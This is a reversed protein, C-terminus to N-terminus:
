HSSALVVFSCCKEGTTKSRIKKIRKGLLTELLTADYECVVPAYKKAVNYLLCNYVNIEFKGDIKKAEAYAGQENLIECILNVREELPKGEFRGRYRAANRKAARVLLRKIGAIGEYEILEDMLRELFESYAKPLTAEGDETLSYVFKPRGRKQKILKREIRGGAELSDLHQRVATPSIGLKGCLEEITLDERTLADIIQQKSGLM